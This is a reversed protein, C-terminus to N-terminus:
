QEALKFTPLNLEANCFMLPERVDRTEIFGSVRACCFPGDSGM